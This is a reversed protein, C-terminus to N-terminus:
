KRDGDEEILKLAEGAYRWNRLDERVTCEECCPCHEIHSCISCSQGNGRLNKKDCLLEHIDEIAAKLLRKAENLETVTDRQTKDSKEIGESNDEDFDEDDWHCNVVKSLALYRKRVERLYRQANDTLMFYNTNNEKDYDEVIDDRRICSLIVDELLNKWAM